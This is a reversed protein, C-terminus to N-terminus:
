NNVIAATFHSGLLSSDVIRAEGELLALVVVFFLM